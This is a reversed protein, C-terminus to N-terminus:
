IDEAVRLLTMTYTNTLAKAVSCGRAIKVCCRVIRLSDLTMALVGTWM